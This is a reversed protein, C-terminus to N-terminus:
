QLRKVTIWAGGYRMRWYGNNSQYFEVEANQVPPLEYNETGTQRWVQGDTLPFYTGGSWGRFVGVVHGTFRPVKDEAERKKLKEITRAIVGPEKKKKYEEVAADAAKKEAQQVKQDAEQKVQAVAQEVAATKAGKTYAEVAANLEAQQEPTMADLGLRQKQATTLTETFPTESGAAFAMSTVALSLLVVRLLFKM